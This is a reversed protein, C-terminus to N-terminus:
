CSVARCAAKALDWDPRRTLLARAESQAAAMGYLEQTLYVMNLSAMAVGNTDGRQEAFLLGIRTADYAGLVDGVLYRAPGLNIWPRPLTSGVADASWLTYDSQWVSARSATVGLLAVAWLAVLFTSLRVM